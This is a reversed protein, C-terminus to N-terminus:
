VGFILLAGVTLMLDWDLENEDALLFWVIVFVLITDMDLKVGHLRSSLLRSLDNFVSLNPSSGSSTDQAESMAPTSPNGAEGEGAPPFPSPEYFGNPAAHSTANPTANSTLNPTMTPHITPSSAASALYRNYM